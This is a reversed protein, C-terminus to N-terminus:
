KGAMTAYKQMTEQMMAIHAKVTRVQSATFYYGTEGAPLRVANEDSYMMNLEPSDLAANAHVHRLGFAHGAEHVLVHRNRAALAKWHLLIRFFCETQRKGAITEASCYYGANSLMNGKNSHYVFINLKDRHFLPSRILTGITRNIARHDQQGVLDPALQTAVSLPTVTRIEFRALFNGAEGRFEYDLTGAVWKFAEPTFALGANENDTILTMHIPILPLDQDQGTPGIALTLVLSLLFYNRWRRSRQHHPLRVYSTTTSCKNKICEM